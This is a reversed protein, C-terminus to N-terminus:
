CCSFDSFARRECFSFHASSAKEPEEVAEFEDDAAVGIADFSYTLCTVESSCFLFNHSAANTAVEAQDYEGYCMQRLARLQCNPLLADFGKSIRGEAEAGGCFTMVYLGSSLIRLRAGGALGVGEVLLEVVESEGAISRLSFSRRYASARSRRKPGGEDVDVVGLAPLRDADLVGM